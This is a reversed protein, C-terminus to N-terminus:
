RYFDKNGDKWLTEVIDKIKHTEHRRIEYTEKVGRLTLIIKYSVDPSGNDLFGKYLVIARMAKEYLCCFLPYELVYGRELSPPATLNESELVFGLNLFVEKM